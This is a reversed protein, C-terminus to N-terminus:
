YTRTRVVSVEPTGRERVTCAISSCHLALVESFCHAICLVPCKVCYSNLKGIRIHLPAPQRPSARPPPRWNLGPPLVACAEPWSRLARRQQPSEAHNRTQLEQQQQQVPLRAHLISAQTFLLM